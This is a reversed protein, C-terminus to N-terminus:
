PLVPPLSLFNCTVRRISSQILHCKKRHTKGMGAVNTPEAGPLDTEEINAPVAVHKTDISHDSQASKLATVFM